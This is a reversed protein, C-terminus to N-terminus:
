GGSLAAFLDRLEEDVQEPDAVTDAIHRRILDRYRARMRHVAVKVAGESLGLDAAAKGQMGREGDGTLFPKLRDFLPGRGRKAYEARLQGLVGELLTLAWRRDFLREPTVEHAPELGYRTEAGATDIPIPTKGGGRKLANAKDRQNSIFHSLSALLYSRFRGRDQRAGAVGDSALFAAFFGQTLDAAADADHGRRRVYAYLPYWYQACLTELAARSATTKEDGARVVLSWRTTAFMPSGAKM